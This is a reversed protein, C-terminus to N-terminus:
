GDHRRRERQGHGRNEPTPLVAGHEVVAVGDGVQVDGAADEIRVAGAERLEAGHPQRKRVQQQNGKDGDIAPPGVADGAHDGRRESKEGGTGADVTKRAVPKWGGGGGEREGEEGGIGVQEVQLGRGHGLRQEQALHDPGDDPEDFPAIAISESGELARRRSHDM